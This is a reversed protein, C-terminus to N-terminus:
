LDPTATLNGRITRQRRSLSGASAPVSASRLRIIASRSFPSQHFGLATLRPTFRELVGHGAHDARPRVAPRSERERWELAVILHSGYSETAEAAHGASPPDRWSSALAPSPRPWRAAIPTRSVSLFCENRVPCAPFDGSRPRAPSCSASPALRRLLSHACFRPCLRPARPAGRGVLTGSPHSCATLRHPKSAFRARAFGVRM